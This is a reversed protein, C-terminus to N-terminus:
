DGKMKMKLIELESLDMECGVIFFGCFVKFLVVFGLFWGVVEGWVSGCGGFGM